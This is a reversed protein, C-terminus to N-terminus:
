YLKMGNIADQVIKGAYKHNLMQVDNIFDEVLAKLEKQFDTPEKVSGSKIAGRSAKVILESLNSVEKRSQQTKTATSAITSSAKRKKRKVIRRAKKSITPFQIEYANRLKKVTTASLPIVRQYLGAERAAANVDELTLNEFGFLNGENTKGIKGAKALNQTLLSYHSAHWKAVPTPLNFISATTM